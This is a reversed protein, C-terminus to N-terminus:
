LRIFPHHHHCGCHSVPAHLHSPCRCTAKPRSMTDSGPGEGSRDMRQGARLRFHPGAGDAALVHREADVREPRPRLARRAAPQVSGPREIPRRMM